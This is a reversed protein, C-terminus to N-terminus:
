HGTVVIINFESPWTLPKSITNGGLQIAMDKAEKQYDPAFYVTNAVFNSRPAMGTFKVKYGLKVLTKVMQKASSMKGDGSLVKVKLNEINVAKEKNDSVPKEAESSVKSEQVSQPAEAKKESVVVPKEEPPSAQAVPPAEATTTIAAEAKEKTDVVPKESVPKEADTLVKSEQVSQPAEAKKESSILPKEEPPIVQMPPVAEVPRTKAVVNERTKLDNNLDAIQKNLQDIESQKEGIARQYASNDQKLRTVESWLEDKTVKGRKLETKPKSVDEKSVLPKSVACGSVAFCVIIVFALLKRSGM